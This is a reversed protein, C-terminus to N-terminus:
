LAQYVHADMQKAHFTSADFGQLDMFTPDQVVRQALEMVIFVLYNIPGLSMSFKFPIPKTWQMVLGTAKLAQM